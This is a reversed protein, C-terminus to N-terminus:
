ILSMQMIYPIKFMMSKIPESNTQFQSLDVSSRPKPLLENISSFNSM